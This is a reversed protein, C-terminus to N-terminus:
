KINWDISDLTERHDDDRSQELKFDSFVMLVSGGELAKFGNYHGGPIELIRSERDNMTLLRRQEPQDIEVTQIIFSGKAVYFWKTERQHGQWARILNLKPEISYMRVVKSMNFDNVFRVKGRKDIHIDGEIIM